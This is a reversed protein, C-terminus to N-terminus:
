DRRGRGKTSGPNQLERIVYNAFQDKILQPLPNADSTGDVPTTFKDRIARRQEASGCVICKEVVNSAFKHKSLNLARDTVYQIMKAREEAEGNEIIHQIVYNGYTDVVLKATCAHLDAMLSKREEPRGSELIRQIVRCAFNHKGLTDVQGRFAEMIFPISVSPLVEVVKQIVHNGNNDLSV